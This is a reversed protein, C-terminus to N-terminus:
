PWRRLVQGRELTGASGLTVRNGISGEGVTKWKVTCLLPDICTHFHISPNLAAWQLCHFGVAPSLLKFPQNYLEQCPWSSPLLRPAAFPKGQSVSFRTDGSSGCASRESCCHGGTPPSERGAAQLSIFGAAALHMCAAPSCGPSQEGSFHAAVLDQM